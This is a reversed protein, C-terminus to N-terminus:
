ATLNSFSYGYPEVNKLMAAVAKATAVVAVVRAAVAVDAKAVM